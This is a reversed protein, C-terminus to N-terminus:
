ALAYAAKFILRVQAAVGLNFVLTRVYSFKRSTTQVYLVTYIIRTVLHIFTTNTLTSQPLKAFNGLIVAAAWVAFWEFGNQQCSQARLIMEETDSLRKGQAARANLRAVFARPNENSWGGQIKRSEAVGISYWHPLAALFLTIPLSAVSINPIMDM